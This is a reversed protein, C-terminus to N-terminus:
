RKNSREEEQNEDRDDRERKKSTLNKELNIKTQKIEELIIKDINQNCMEKYKKTIDKSSNEILTWLQYQDVSKLKVETNTLKAIVQEM